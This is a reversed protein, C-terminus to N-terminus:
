IDSIADILTDYNHVFPASASMAAVEEKSMDGIDRTEDQYKIERVEIGYKLFLKKIYRTKLSADPDLALLVPTDHTIIKQFLKSSERITSGLIPVSNHAKMADFIGEVLTVEEEFDVYLENFIINRSVPPNMYRRYDDAYTRAIFYNLDGRENFSPVIIRNRFNGETTYGIKWKL